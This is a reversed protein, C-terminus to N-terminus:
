VVDYPTDNQEVRGGYNRCKKVNAVPLAIKQWSALWRIRLMWTAIAAILTQTSLHRRGIYKDNWVERAEYWPQAVL